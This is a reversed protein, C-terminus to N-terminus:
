EFLSKDILEDATDISDDGEDLIILIEKDIIMSGLVDAMTVGAGLQASIQELCIQGIGGAYTYAYQMANVLSEIELNLVGKFFKANVKFALSGDEWVQISGILYSLVKLFSMSSATDGLNEIIQEIFTDIDFAFTLEVWQGEETLYNFYAKNDFAYFEVCKTGVDDKETVVLKIEDSKQMEALGDYRFGLVLDYLNKDNGNFMLSGDLLLATDNYSIYDSFSGGDEKPFDSILKTSAKFDSLEFCIDYSEGRFISEKYDSAAVSIDVKFNSISGKGFTNRAGGKTTMNITMSADPFQSGIRKADVGFVSEVIWAVPEYYDAFSPGSVMDIIKVLTAKLDVQFVYNRTRKGDTEDKYKYQIDGKTLINASAFGAVLKEINDKFAIPFLKGLFSNTLPIKVKADSYQLYFNGPSKDGNPEDEFFYASIFTEKEGHKNITLGVETASQDRNDYNIEFVLDYPMENIVAALEIHWSVCPNTANFRNVSATKATNFLSYVLEDAVDDITAKGTIFGDTIPTDVNGPEDPKIKCSFVSLGIIIALLVVLFVSAKKM